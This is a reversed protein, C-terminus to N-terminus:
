HRPTAPEFCFLLSTQANVFIRGNAISPPCCTRAGLGRSRWLQVGTDLDHVILGGSTIALALNPLVVRVPCCAHSPSGVLVRKGDRMLPKGDTISFVLGRGGYGRTILCDKGISLHRCGSVKQQWIATGDKASLCTMPLGYGILYLKGDKASVVNIGYADSKWLVSGDKPNLALTTGEKGRFRWTYFLVGDLLCGGIACTHQIDNITVKGSPMVKWVPTGKDADFAQIVPYYGKRTIFSAVVLGDVVVPSSRSNCDVGSVIGKIPQAWVTEGTRADLAMVSRVRGGSVRDYDCGILYLRDKFVTPVTAGDGTVGIRRRWRIRGTMQEMAIVTGDMTSFFVDTLSATPPARFSGLPRCAWRLRYPPKLGPDEVASTNAFNGTPYPWDYKKGTALTVASKPEYLRM